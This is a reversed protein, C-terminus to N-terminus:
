VPSDDCVDIVCDSWDPVVNHQKLLQHQYNVFQQSQWLSQEVFTLRSQLEQKEQRTRELEAKVEELETKVRTELNKMMDIMQPGNFEVQAVPRTNVHTRLIYLKQSGYRNTAHYEVDVHQPYAAVFRNPFAANHWSDFHIFAM